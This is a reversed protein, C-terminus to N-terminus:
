EDVVAGPGGLVIRCLGRRVGGHGLGGGRVREVGRALLADLDVAGDAVRPLAVRMEEVLAAAVAVHPHARGVLVVLAHERQDFGGGPPFPLLAGMSKLKVGSSSRKRASTRAKM